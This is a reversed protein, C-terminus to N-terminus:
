AALREELEKVIRGLDVVIRMLRQGPEQLVSMLEKNSRVLIVDIGSVVLRANALPNALGAATRLYEVVRRIRQLPVGQSRLEQATRLAVVDQFNWLRRSGTGHAKAVSPSIFSTVDWAQLTKINVGTLRSVQPTTFSTM